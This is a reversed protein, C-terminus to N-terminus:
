SFISMVSYVVLLLLALSLSIYASKECFVSLKSRNVQVFNLERFEKLANQAEVSLVKRAREEIMSWEYLTIACSLIGLSLSVVALAFLFRPLLNDTTSDHLSIVIGLLTVSVILLSQFFSLRKDASKEALEALKHLQNKYYDINM